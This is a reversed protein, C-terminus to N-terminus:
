DFISADIEASVIAGISESEMPIGYEIVMQEIEDKDTILKSNTPDVFVENQELSETPAIVEEGKKCGSVAFICIAIAFLLILSKKM